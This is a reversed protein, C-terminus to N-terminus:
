SPKFYLKHDVTLFSFQLHFNSLFPPLFTKMKLIQLSDPSGTATTTATATTATTAETTTASKSTTTTTPNYSNISNSSSKNNNYYNNSSNHNLGEELNFEENEEEFNKSM